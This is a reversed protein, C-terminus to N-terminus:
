HGWVKGGTKFEIKKRHLRRSFRTGIRHRKQENGVKCAKKSKRDGQGRETFPGVGTSDFVMTEKTVRKRTTWSWGQEGEGGLV